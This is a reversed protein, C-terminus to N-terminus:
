GGKKLSDKKIDIIKYDDDTIGKVGKPKKFPPMSKLSDLVPSKILNDARKVMTDAKRDPLSPNLLSDIKNTKKISDVRAPLTPNKIIAPDNAQFMKKEPTQYLQGSDGVGESSKKNIAPAAERKAPITEKKGSTYVWFFAVTIVAAATFFLGFSNGFGPLGKAPQTPSPQSNGDGGDPPSGADMQAEIDAWISDIKDPVSIAVVKEAILIEYPTKSNM